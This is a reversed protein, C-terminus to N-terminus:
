LSVVHADSFDGNSILAARLDCRHFLIKWFRFVNKAMKMDDFRNAIAQVFLNISVVKSLLALIFYPIM